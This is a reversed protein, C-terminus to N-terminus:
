RGRSEDGADAGTARDHSSASPWALKIGLNLDHRDQRIGAFATEAEPYKEATTGLIGCM